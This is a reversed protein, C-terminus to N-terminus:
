VLVIPRQNSKEMEALEGDMIGHVYCDGVFSYKSSHGPAPAADLARVIFPVNAGNFLWVEDGPRSHPYCLGVRGSATTFFCRGWIACNIGQGYTLPITASIKGAMVNEFNDDEQVVWNKTRELPTLGDAHSWYSATLDACVTRLFIERSDLIQCDMKERCLKLWAHLVSSVRAESMSSHEQDDMCPGVDDIIDM